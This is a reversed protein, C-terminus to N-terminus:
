FPVNEKSKKKSAVSEKVISFQQYTKDGDKPKWGWANLYGTKGVVGQLSEIMKEDSSLDADIGGFTFVDNILKKVKKDTKEADDGDLYIRKSFDGFKSGERKADGELAEIINLEAQLYRADGNKEDTELRLVDWSVEYTGKYPQWEGEANEEAKFGQAKLREALSM